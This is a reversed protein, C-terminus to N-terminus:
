NSNIKNLNVNEIAEIRNILHKLLTKRKNCYNRM